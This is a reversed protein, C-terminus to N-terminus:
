EQTDDSGISGLFTPNEQTLIINTEKQDLQLRIYTDVPVDSIYQFLVSSIEIDEVSEVKETCTLIGIVDTM